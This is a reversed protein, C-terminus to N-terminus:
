LGCLLKLEKYDRELLITRHDRYTNLEAMQPSIIKSKAKLLKLEFDLKNSQKVEFIM